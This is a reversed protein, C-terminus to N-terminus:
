IFLCLYLQNLFLPVASGTGLETVGDGVICRKWSSTLRELEASLYCGARRGAAMTQKEWASTNAMDTKQVCHSSLWQPLVHLRCAKTASGSYEPLPRLGLSQGQGLGWGLNWSVAPNLFHCFFCSQSKSYIILLNENLLVFLVCATFAYCRACLM